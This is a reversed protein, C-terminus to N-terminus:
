FIDQCSALLNPWQAPSVGLELLQLSVELPRRHWRKRWALDLYSRRGLQTVDLSMVDLSMLVNAAGSQEYLNLRRCKPTFVVVSFFYALLGCPLYDFTAWTCVFFM